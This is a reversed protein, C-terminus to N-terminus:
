KRLILEIRLRVDISVDEMCDGEKWKEWWFGVLM